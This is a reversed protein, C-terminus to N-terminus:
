FKFLEFGICAGLGVILNNYAYSDVIYICVMGIGALLIYMLLKGINLDNKMSKRIFILVCVVCIIILSKFFKNIVEILYNTNREETQEKKCKKVTM